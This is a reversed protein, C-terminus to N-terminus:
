PTVESPQIVTKSALDIVTASEGKPPESAAPHELLEPAAHFLEGFKEWLLANEYRQQALANEHYQRAALAKVNAKIIALIQDKRNEHM